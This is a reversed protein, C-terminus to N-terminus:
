KETPSNRKTRERLEMLGKKVEKLSLEVLNDFNDCWSCRIAYDAHEEVAKILNNEDLPSMTWNNCKPCLARICLLQNYPPSSNRYFKKNM